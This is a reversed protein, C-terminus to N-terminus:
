QSLHINHHQLLDGTARDLNALAVQYSIEAQVLSAEAQALETQAELVFFVPEDGLQQKREEAHLSKRALDASAKAAEISLKDQEVQHVANSVDLMITQTVGRQQYQDNKRNVLANGLNAEAAHNKIPLSLSLSVAYTPYNFHVAQNVSDSFGGASIRAPPTVNLDYETGGVGSGAYSASLQLSPRLNNHALRLNLDDSALRLRAAELEARNALARSQEAEIDVAALEGATEPTETLQMDLPRVSPDLDAGIFRRLDDEDQKLAYENQILSLRRSAVQAESRYTDVPAVVGLSLQKKDRDYSRQASDLSKRQVVLNERDLIVTWYQVMANLVIANVEVEFGARAQQLNRRAILIPARNPFLGANRLLPQTLSFQLSTNFSPNLFYYDNNTSYKNVYFNTQFNTGTEFTQSYAVQTSQSLYSQVAAGQLQSDSPTKSRSANFGSSVLPDFPSYTSHLANQALQLPADAIKIDTNNQLALQIVDELSLVLKGDTVHAALGQPPLLTAAPLVRVPFGTLRELRTSQQGYTSLTLYAALLWGVLYNVAKGVKGEQTVYVTGFGQRDSSQSMQLFSRLQRKRKTLLREMSCIFRGSPAIQM